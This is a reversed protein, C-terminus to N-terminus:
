PVDSDSSCSNEPLSMYCEDRTKAFVVNSFLLNRNQFLLTDVRRSDLDEVLKLGALRVYRDVLFAAIDDFRMETCVRSEVTLMQHKGRDLRDEGVQSHQYHNVRWTRDGPFQEGLSSPELPRDHPVRAYQRSEAEFFELVL